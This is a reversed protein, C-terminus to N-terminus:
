EEYIGIINKIIGVDGGDLVFFFVNIVFVVIYLILDNKFLFKM